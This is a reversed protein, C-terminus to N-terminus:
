AFGQLDLLFIRADIRGDPRQFYAKRRAIEQFGLSQYLGSASINDTAVELRLLQAGEARLDAGGLTLLGRAAGQRRAEPATALTLIEAEDLVLDCLLFACPEGEADRSVWLRASPRACLGLLEAASWGRAGEEAFAAAHIEALAAALEADLAPVREPRM